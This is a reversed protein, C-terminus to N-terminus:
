RRLIGRKMGNLECRVGRCRSASGLWRGHNLSRDLRNGDSIWLEDSPVIVIRFFADPFGIRKNEWPRSTSYSSGIESM